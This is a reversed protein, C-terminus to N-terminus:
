EAGLFRATEELTRVYARWSRVRSRAVAAEIVRFEREEPSDDRSRRWSSAADAEDAVREADALFNRAVALRRRVEGATASEDTV